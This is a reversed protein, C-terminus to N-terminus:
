PPSAPITWAVALAALDYGTLSLEPFVVVRAGAGRVAEAHLVANAAVDPSACRPQAVAVALPEPM